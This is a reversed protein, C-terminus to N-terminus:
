KLAKARRILYLKSRLEEERPLNPTGAGEMELACSIGSCNKHHVEEASAFSVNVPTM